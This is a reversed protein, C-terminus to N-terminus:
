WVFPILRYRTKACYDKYGALNEKLYKEEEVARIAMILILAVGFIIGFYSDLALPTFIFILLAGSYMPHRVIGYPGTTVVKQEEKVEITASTFSNAKFVRFIIYLGIVVALDAAISLWQPVASWGYRHDFASLVMMGVLSLSAFSQIIRQKKQKEAVPGAQNRREILAPDHKTFYLTIFLIPFFFAALFAWAQWYYITWAPLFIMIGMALVFQVLGELAKSSVKDM